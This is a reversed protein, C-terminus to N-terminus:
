SDHQFGEIEFQIVKADIICCNLDVVTYVADILLLMFKKVQNRKLTRKERLKKVYSKKIEM